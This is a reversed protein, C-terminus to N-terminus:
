SHFWLNKTAQPEESHCAKTQITMRLTLSSDINQNKFESLKFAREFTSAIVILTKIGLGSREYVCFSTTSAVPPVRASTSASRSRCNGPMRNRITSSCSRIRGCMRNKTLPSCSNSRSRGSCGVSARSMTCANLPPQPRQVAILGPQAGEVRFRGERVVACRRAM